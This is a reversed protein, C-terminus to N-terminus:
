TTKFDMVLSCGHNTGVAQFVTRIAAIQDSINTTPQKQLEIEICGGRPLDRVSAVTKCNFVSSCVAEALWKVSDRPWNPDFEPNSRPLAVSVKSTNRVDSISLQEGKPAGVAATITRLARFMKGGRGILQGKDKPACRLAFVTTSAGEMDTEVAFSSRDSVLSSGIAQLVDRALIARERM